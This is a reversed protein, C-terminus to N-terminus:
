YCIKKGEPSIIYAEQVYWEPLIEWDFVKTGSPVSKIELKSLHTSIKKVTERLGEGTISRNISWLEKAFKYIEDGIM